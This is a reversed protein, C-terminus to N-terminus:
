SKLGNIGKEAEVVYVYLSENIGDTLSRSLKDKLM